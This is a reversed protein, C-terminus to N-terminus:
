THNLFFDAYKCSRGLTANAWQSHVLGQTQVGFFTPNYISANVLYGMYMLLLTANAQSVGLQGSIDGPSMTVLGYLATANTWIETSLNPIAIWLLVELCVNISCSKLVQTLASIQASSRM